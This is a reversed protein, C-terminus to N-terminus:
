KGQAWTKLEDYTVEGCIFKKSKTNYFFPVGGCLGKDYTEMHKLNEDNHWVEITDVTLGTEKELRPFLEHMKICHPCETGYFNLLHSM